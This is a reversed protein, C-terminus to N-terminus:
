TAINTTTEDTLSAGAPLPVAAITPVTGNPDSAEVIFALNHGEAIQRNPIFQLVPPQPAASDTQMTLAYQGSSNADFLNIYHDWQAGEGRTRSRWVNHSSLTKGDARVVSTIAKTGAHPDPLRVFLFGATPPASLSYSAQEGSQGVVVLQAADSQDSVTTDLGSSEYVWLTDGDSALFDRVADRGPLDVLVDHVLLHANVADILSTLEGGLEDAHSFDARFETFEGSLTTAMQWRGVTATSPPLDGFEILLDADAPEDNVSSGLIRFDILLGLENEVIRPQASDIKLNRATGHGANVVRVGLSFPEAPEIEPTFADDAYVEHPLFYDLTLEPMPKVLIYDPTVEVTEPAGGLTYRLTAGVYHLQGAPTEGGTGPAPIILWYIDASTGPAVTGAGDIDSIGAMADVRIFFAADTNDPESTAVVPEGAENTFVVTIAVDEVAITDLGNNIRM